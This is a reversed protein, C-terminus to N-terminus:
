PHLRRAASMTLDEADSGFRIRVEFERGASRGDPLCRLLRQLYDTEHLGDPNKADSLKPWTKPTAPYLFGM